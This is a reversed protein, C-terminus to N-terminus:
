YKRKLIESWIIGKQVEEASHIDLEIDPYEAVSSSTATSNEKQFQSTISSKAQLMDSSSSLFPTSTPKEYRKTATEPRYPEPTNAPPQKRKKAAADSAQKVIAFIIIGIVILVQFINEM